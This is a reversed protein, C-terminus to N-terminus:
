FLYKVLLLLVIGPVGLVGVVIANFWNVGLSLGIFGGLFNLILLGLFGFLTNLLLKLVWKLPTKFVRFLLVLLGTGAIVLLLITVADM